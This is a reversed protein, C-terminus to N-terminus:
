LTRLEGGGEGGLFCMGTRMGYLPVGLGVGKCGGAEMQM